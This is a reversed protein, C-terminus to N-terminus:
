KKGQPLQLLGDAAISRALKEIHEPDDVTRPQYPNDLVKTLPILESM